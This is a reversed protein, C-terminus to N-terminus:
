TILWGGFEKGKSSLGVSIIDLGTVLEQNNMEFAGDLM